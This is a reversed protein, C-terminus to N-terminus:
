STGRRSRGSGRARGQRGSCNGWGAARHVKRRAAALKAKSAVRVAVGHLWPGVSDRVWLSGAKRVLVLFTAQFADQVDHSEGLVGQCVRLVMPGHREVLSAFAAEAAERHGYFQELLQADSLGGTVGSAFLSRMHWLTQMSQRGEM